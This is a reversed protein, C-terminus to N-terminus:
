FLKVLIFTVIVQLLFIGAKKIFRKLKKEGSARNM